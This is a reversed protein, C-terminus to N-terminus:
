HLGNIIMGFKIVPQTKWFKHDAIDKRGGPTMENMQKIIMDLKMQEEKSLSKRDELTASSIADQVEALLIEANPKQSLLKKLKSKKKKKKSKSSSESALTKEDDEHGEEEDNVGTPTEENEVTTKVDEKDAMISSFLSFRLFDSRKSRLQSTMFGAILGFISGDKLRDYCDAEM